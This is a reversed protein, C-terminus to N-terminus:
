HHQVTELAQLLGGQLFYAYLPFFTISSRIRSPQQSPTEHSKSILLFNFFFFFSLSLSLSLSFWKILATYEKASEYPVPSYRWGRAPCPGSRCSRKEGRQSHASCNHSSIAIFHSYACVYVCVCVCLSLSRPMFIPSSCLLTTYFQAAIRFAHRCTQMNAHESASIMADGRTSSYKNRSQRWFEGGWEYVCARMDMCGRSEWRGRTESEYWEGRKRRGMRAKASEVKGSQVKKGSIEVWRSGLSVDKKWM